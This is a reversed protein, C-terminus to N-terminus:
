CTKCFMIARASPWSTSCSSSKNALCGSVAKTQRLTLTAEQFGQKQSPVVFVLSQHQMSCCLTNSCEGAGGPNVTDWAELTPSSGSRALIQKLASLVAVEAYSSFCQQAQGFDMQVYMGGPACQTRDAGLTTRYLNLYGSTFHAYSRPIQGEIGENWHLAIHLDQRM